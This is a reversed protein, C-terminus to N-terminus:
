EKLVTRSASRGDAATVDLIYIGVPGPIELEIRDTGAFQRDAIVQGMINRVLIDVREQWDGLEIILNGSTPNPYTRIDVQLSPIDISVTSIATRRIRFTVDGGNSSITFEISDPNLDTPEYFVSFTYDTGGPLWAATDFNTSFETGQLDTFSLLRLTDNARNTITMSLNDIHGIGTTDPEPLTDSVAMLIPAFSSTVPLSASNWANIGGVMNVVRTFNMGPMMAFTNASRAGSACHILYFKHKPLSNLLLSFNPSFYDLNIAGNLHQPFYEGPTRLDLIVFDPNTSNAQILSDCQLVSYHALLTDRTQSHVPNYASLCSLIVVFVIRAVLFQHIRM